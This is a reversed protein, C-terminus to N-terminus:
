TGVRRLIDPAARLRIPSAWRFLHASDFPFADVLFVALRLSLEACGPPGVDNSRKLLPPSSLLRSQGHGLLRCRLLSSSVVSAQKIARLDTIRGTGTLTTGARLRQRMASEVVAYPPLLEIWVAARLTAIGVTYRLRPNPTNVVRLLLRAVGEPGPGNQEDDATRKLAAAFSAYVRQGVTAAAMRRNRTIETQTDGPEIVVRIGFPRVELRLSETM